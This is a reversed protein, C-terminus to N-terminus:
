VDQRGRERWLSKGTETRYDAGYEAHVEGRATGDVKADVVVVGSAHGIRIPGDGASALTQPVSGPLRAAVAACIAATLQIARHPQGVSIMRVVLDADGVAVTRGSLTEYSRPRAVIGIKPM